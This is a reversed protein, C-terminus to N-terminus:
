LQFAEPAFLATGSADRGGVILIRGGPLLTATHDARPIRLRISDPFRFARDVSPVYVEFTSLTTGDAATGGAVLVFGNLFVAAANERPTTLPTIASGELDFPFRPGSPALWDFSYATLGDTADPVGFIVASGESVGRAGISALTPAAYAPFGGSVGGPPSLQTLTGDDWRYVDVTRLAAGRSDVGGFLTIVVVDDLTLTQSVHNFRAIPISTGTDTIVSVTEASGQEPDVLEATGTLTLPAETRAGGLLLVRGDPLVSATHGTRADLLSIDDFSLVSSSASILTGEARGQGSSNAGGTLLVQGSPLPSAAAGARAPPTGSVPVSASRLDAHFVYLTDTGRLGEADFVKVPLVNLGSFLSLSIQYANLSGDFRTAQGGVTVSDIDGFIEARLALELLPNTQVVSLDQPLIVEVRPPALDVVPRDCGAILLLAAFCVLCRM